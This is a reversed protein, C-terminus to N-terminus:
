WNSLDFRDGQVARINDIVRRAFMVAVVVAAVTLAVGTWVEVRPASGLMLEWGLTFVFCGFGIPV